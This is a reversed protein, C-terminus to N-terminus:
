LSTKFAPINLLLHVRISLTQTHVHWIMSSRPTFGIAVICKWKNAIITLIKESKKTKLIIYKCYWSMDSLCTYEECSSHIGGCTIHINMLVVVPSFSLTVASFMVCVEDTDPILSFVDFKLCKKSMIRQKPNSQVSGSRPWILAVRWETVPPCSLWIISSVTFVASCHWKTVRPVPCIFVAISYYRENAVTTLIEKLGWFLRVVFM